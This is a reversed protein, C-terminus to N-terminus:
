STTHETTTASGAAIRNVVLLVAITGIAYTLSLDMFGTPDFHTSRFPWRVHGSMVASPFYTMGIALVASVALAILVDGVERHSRRVIAIAAAILPVVLLNLGWQVRLSHIEVETVLPPGSDGGSQAKALLVLWSVFFGAFMLLMYLTIRRVHERPTAPTM